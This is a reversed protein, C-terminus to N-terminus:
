VREAFTTAEKLVWTYLYYILRAYMYTASPKNQFGPTVNALCARQPEAVDVWDNSEVESFM